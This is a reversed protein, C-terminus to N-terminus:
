LIHKIVYKVWLQIKELLPALFKDHIEGHQVNKTLVPMYMKLISSKQM